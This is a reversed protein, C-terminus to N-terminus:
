KIVFKKAINDNGQKIELFYIGSNFESVNFTKRFNGNSVEVTEVLMTKGIIDSITIQLEANEQVLFEVTFTTTAPNPFMSISSINELENVGVSMTSFSYNVAWASTDNGNYARVSWYYMSTDLANLPYTDSSSGPVIYYMADSMDENASIRIEYGDVAKIDDWKLIPRYTNLAAGDVPSELEISNITTFSRVESWPSVDNPHTAKVRWFYETGFKYFDPTYEVEHTLITVPDSFSDDYSIQCTYEFVDDDNNELEDWSLEQDFEVDDENNSPDDLEIGLVTEFYWTETWTGVDQAHMPRMHWYYITGFLLYDPTLEFLLEDDDFGSTYITSIPSDFNESTDVEVHYGDLGTVDEGDVSNKWQFNPRIEVEDDDDKPKKNTGESFTTFTFVASWDSTGNDDKGNVRWFYQQGFLLYENYYASLIVADDDVVLASFAEDTALQVHYSIEGVGSVADWDLIADPMTYEYENEPSTPQPVSVKQAIAFQAVILMIFIGYFKKM